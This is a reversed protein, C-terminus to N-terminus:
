DEMRATVPTEEPRVLRAVAAHCAKPEEPYVAVPKPRNDVWIVLTNREKYTRHLSWAGVAAFAIGGLLHEEVAFYAGFVFTIVSMVGLGWKFVELKIKMIADGPITITEDDRDVHVTGDDIRLWGGRRLAMRDTETNDM